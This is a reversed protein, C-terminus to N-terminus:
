QTRSLQEDPHWSTDVSELRRVILVSSLATPSLVFRALVAFFLFRFIRVRSLSSQGVPWNPSFFFCSFRVFALRVKSATRKPAARNKVPDWITPESAREGIGNKNGWLPGEDIM